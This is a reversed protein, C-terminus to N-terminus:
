MLCLDQGTHWAEQSKCRGCIRNFRGKPSYLEGCSMCNAAPPGGRRGLQHRQAAGRVSGASRGLAKGIRDLPEGKAWLSCLLTIEPRTWPRGTGM